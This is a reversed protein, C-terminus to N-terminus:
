KEASDTDTEETEVGSDGSGTNVNAETKPELSGATGLKTTPAAVKVDRTFPAAKRTFILLDRLTSKIKSLEKTKETQGLLKKASELHDIIKKSLAM